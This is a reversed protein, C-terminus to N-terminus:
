RKNGAGYCLNNTVKRPYYVVNRAMHVKKARVKSSEICNLLIRNRSQGTVSPFFIGILITFTTTIDVYIQSDIRRAGEIVKDGKESVIEDLSQFNHWLNEAFHDFLQIILYAFFSFLYYPQNLRWSGYIVGSTLGQIGKVIKTQHSNYYPDCTSGNCYFQKLYSM